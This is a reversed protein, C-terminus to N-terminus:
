LRARPCIQDKQTKPHPLAPLYHAWERRTLNRNAIRCARQQLSVMAANADWLRITHDGSGSALVRGDPSFAVSTVTDTHGSLPAGIQQHTVVDWLRITHDGSGSALMTGDSNFAVAYVISTHGHLLMILYPNDHLIKLLSDRAEKTAAVHIAKVSLLLAVDVQDGLRRVAQAVLQHSLATTLAARAM